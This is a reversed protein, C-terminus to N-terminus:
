STAESSVSVPAPAPEDSPVTGHVIMWQVRPGRAGVESWWRSAELQAGAEAYNQAQLAARFQVFEDLGHDGMNFVLNILARQRVPM